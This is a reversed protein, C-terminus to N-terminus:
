ITSCRPRPRTGFTKTPRSGSYSPLWRTTSRKIGIREAGQRVSSASHITRLTNWFTFGATGFHAFFLLNESSWPHFTFGGFVLNLLVIPLVGILACVVGYTLAGRPERSQNLKEVAGACFLLFPLMAIATWFIVVMLESTHITGDAGFWVLCYSVLGALWAVMSVGIM